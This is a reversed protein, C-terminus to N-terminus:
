RRVEEILRGLIMQAEFHSQFIPFTLKHIFVESGYPRFWVQLTESDVYRIEWSPAEPDDLTANRRWILIEMDGVHKKGALSFGFDLPFFAKNLKLTDALFTEFSTDTKAGKGKINLKGSSGEIIYKAGTFGAFLAANLKTM